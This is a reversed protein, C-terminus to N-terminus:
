KKSLINICIKELFTRNESDCLFLIKKRNKESIELSSVLESHSNLNSISENKDLIPINYSDSFSPPVDIEFDFKCKKEINNKIEELNTYIEPTGYCEYAVKLLDRKLIRKILNSSKKNGSNQLLLLVEDDSSDMFDKPSLSNDEISYKMSNRLMLSASRVTHHLYVTFFMMFRGILLSEAAELGGLNIGFLKKRESIFITHIIRDSDIVGYAVGTNRSDRILYDMRDAGIPSSVLEKYITNSINTIESPLYNEKIIDSIEGKLIKKRGIEEHNGFFPKLIKESEHSFATHGVDHLLAYLRIKQSIEEGCKLKNCMVSALHMTGLSHEFRTHMANPYVLYTLALQKIRRLRQFDSSDLIKKEIDNLEISKHIEDKIFIM